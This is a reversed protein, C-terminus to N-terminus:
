DRYKCCEPLNDYVKKNAKYKNTDHGVKVIAKSIADVSTKQPNFQLHIMQKEQDWKASSVANVSKAASEIRNKCQECKGSVTFTAHQNHESMEKMLSKTMSRKPQNTEMSNNNITHGEHQNPVLTKGNNMAHGEHGGMPKAENDNMMSRKGELQASADISFVGNTVVEEGESLGKLIVYANGLSPGLEVQRMLFSPSTVGTQKVYVISRKGTWLIASSPIVIENKYAKLGANLAATAYMEPKLIGKPNSVEIRVGATRTTPNIIPDIFSVKGAFVKGPVSTLTFELRDGINIFALDTEYAQFLAWVRSLNAVDFLVAGQSVYDGQSVRKNIVIGSANAKIDVVPSVNGSHEISTIQADSMKWLHLKERAARILQPQNIKLAELLEQQATLLEPSYIRALTQGAQVAEGTFNIRLGEIRGSIHATQSQLNREDAAIKGYMRIEKMPNKRSVLSTQVNALAAAEESLQVTNLNMAKSSDSSKQLPILDMACIPCKGPKDKRIQPHMSCTWIQAEKQVEHTHGEHESSKTESPSSFLLWGILLGALAFLVYKVQKLKGIETIRKM